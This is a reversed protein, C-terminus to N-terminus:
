LKIIKNIIPIKNIISAIIISIIITLIYMYIDYFFINKFVTITNLIRIIIVHLIFIGFIDNNLFNIIKIVKINKINITNIFYFILCVYIIIFINDYFFEARLDNFIYKAVNIQYIIVILMYIIGLFSYQLNLQEKKINIYKSFYGGLSFYFMWTWLRFTQIINSTIIEKKMMGNLINICDMVICVVLLIFLFMKFTKKNSYIKRHLIPLLIYILLLSGLFWFQYFTGRQILSDLIGIDVEKKLIIKILSVIINWVVVIFLINKEKKIIYAYTIKEKKILLYGNVMFFIPIAFVNGYYLIMNLINNIAVKSGFVHLAVVSFCSLVKLFDFNINRKDKQM